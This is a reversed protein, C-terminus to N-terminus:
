TVEHRSIQPRVSLLPLVAMIEACPSHPFADSGARTEELALTHGWSSAASCCTKCGLVRKWRGVKRLQQFGTMLAAVHQSLWVAEVDVFRVGKWRICAASAVSEQLVATGLQCLMGYNTPQLWLGEAM